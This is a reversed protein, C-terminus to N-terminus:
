TVAPSKPIADLLSQLLAEHERQNRELTRLAARVVESANEYRGSRVEAAIFDELEQTLSVNRAPMIGGGLLLGALPFQGAQSNAIGTAPTTTVVNTAHHWGILGRIRGAHGTALVGVGVTVLRLMIGM